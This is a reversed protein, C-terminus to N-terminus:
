EVESMGSVVSKVVPTKQLSGGAWGCFALQVSGLPQPQSDPLHKTTGARPPKQPSHRPSSSQGSPPQVTIFGTAPTPETHLRPLAPSPQSLSAAHVSGVACSQLGTSSTGPMM